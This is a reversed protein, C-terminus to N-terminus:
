GRDGGERGGKGADPDKFNVSDAKQTLHGPYQLKLM